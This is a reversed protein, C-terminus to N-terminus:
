PTRERRSLDLIYDVFERARVEKLSAYRKRDDNAERAIEYKLNQYFKRATEHQRLYDRFLIHRHLEACDCHYVYLHHPINDLVDDQTKGNRKFVDRGVVGQNGNHNYGYYGLCKKIREFDGTENYVVDIDIIPKAALGPVATSGIHEIRVCIGALIGSLKESIQAFHNIWAASYAVILM